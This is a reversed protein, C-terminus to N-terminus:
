KMGFKKIGGISRKSIIEIFTPMLLPDTNTAFLHTECQCDSCGFGPIIWDAFNKLASSIECELNENTRIPIDKYFAARARLYDIHWFFKKKKRKHREIRKSLGRKASGVYIYYGKKFPLSGLRGISIRRDEKLRLILIYAGEDQFELESM